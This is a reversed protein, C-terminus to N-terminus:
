KSTVLWDKAWKLQNQLAHQKQMQKVCDRYLKEHIDMTNNVDHKQALEYGTLGMRKAQVPNALLKIIADGLTHTSGPKALYGNVQNHVIEPICTADIAVIPLAHHAM